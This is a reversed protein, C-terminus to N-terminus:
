EAPAHALIINAVKQAEPRTLDFPLGVVQIILGARLPIPLVTGQLEADLPAVKQAGSEGNPQNGTSWGLFLEVPDIGLVVALAKAREERPRMEGALWKRVSETEVNVNLTALKERLWV